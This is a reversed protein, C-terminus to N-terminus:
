NIQRTENEAQRVQVRRVVPHVHHRQDQHQAQDRRSIALNAQAIIVHHSILAIRDLNLIAAEKDVEQLRILTAERAM